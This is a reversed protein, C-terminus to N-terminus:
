WRPAAARGAGTAEALAVRGREDVTAEDHGVEPAAVGVAEAAEEVAEGLRRGRGPDGDVVARWSGTVGGVRVVARQGEVEIARGAGEGAEPDVEEVRARRGGLADVEVRAADAPEGELHAAFRAALRHAQLQGVGVPLPALVRRGDGVHGAEHRGAADGGLPLARPQRQRGGGALDIRRAGGAQDEQDVGLAVGIPVAADLEAVEGQGALAVEAGRGRRRRRRRHRTPTPTPREASRVEGAGRAARRSRLAMHSQSVSRM